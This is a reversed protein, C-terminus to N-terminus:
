QVVLAIVAALVGGVGVIAGVVAAILGTSAQRDETAERSGLKLAEIKVVREKLDNLITTVGAIATNQIVGLQKLQESTGAESKAIATASATTQEKVAEKQAILAADVASKTDLKQEVRQREVLEFEQEVKEFKEDHTRFKQETLQAASVLRTEILEKLAKIERQLAETTLQTPDPVPRSGGDRIM